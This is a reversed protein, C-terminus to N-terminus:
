SLCLVGRWPRGRWRVFPLIKKSKENLSQIAKDVIIKLNILQNKRTMLDIINNCVDIAGFEDSASGFYLANNNIFKDIAECKKKLLRYVKVIAESDYVSIM